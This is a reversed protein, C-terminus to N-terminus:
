ESVVARAHNPEWTWSVLRSKQARTQDAPTFSLPTTVPGDKSRSPWLALNSKAAVNINTKRRKKGSRKGQEQEQERQQEKDDNTKM